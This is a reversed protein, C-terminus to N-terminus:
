NKMTLWVALYAMVMALLVAWLLLLTENVVAPMVMLLALAAGLALVVVWETMRSM